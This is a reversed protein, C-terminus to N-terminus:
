GVLDSSGADVEVGGGGTVVSSGSFGSADSGGSGVCSSSFGVEVFFPIFGSSGLFGFLVSAYPTAFGNINAQLSVTACIKVAILSTETIAEVIIMLTVSTFEAATM